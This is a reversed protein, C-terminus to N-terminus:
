LYQAPIFNYTATEQKIGIMMLNLEPILARESFFNHDLKFKRFLKITNRMIPNLKELGSGLDLEYVENIPLIKHRRTSWGCNEDKFNYNPFLYDVSQPTLRWMDVPIRHLRWVFPVSLCVTGGPKTIYDINQAIKFVDLVHEMVYHIHVTNFKNKYQKLDEFSAKALDLVLDVGEGDFIDIGLYEDEDAVHQMDRPSYQIYSSDILSGIELFPSKLLHPYQKYFEVTIATAM